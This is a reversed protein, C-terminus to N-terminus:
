CKKYVLLLKLVLDFLKSVMFIFLLSRLDLSYILSFAILCSFSILYVIGSSYISVNLKGKPNFYLETIIISCIFFVASMIILFYYELPVDKKFFYYSINSSYLYSLPVLTIIILISFGFLYKFSFDYSQRIFKPLVSIILIQVPMLVVLYLKLFVDLIAVSTYSILTGSFILYSKDSLTQIVKLIFFRGSETFCSLALSLEFRIKVNNNFNIYIYQLLVSVLYSTGLICAYVDVDVSTNVFYLTFVVHIILRVISFSVLKSAINKAVFFHAFNFCEVFPLLILIYPYLEEGEFKFNLFIVYVCSSVLFTLLKVTFVSSLIVSSNAESKSANYIIYNEFGFIVFTQIFFVITLYYTFEGYAESGFAKILLPTIVLLVVADLGRNLILSFITIISDRKNKLFGIM